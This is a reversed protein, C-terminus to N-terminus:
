SADMRPLRVQDLRHQCVRHATVDCDVPVLDLPIRHAGGSISVVFSSLVADEGGDRGVDLNRGHYQILGRSWSPLRFRNRSALLMGIFHRGLRMEDVGVKAATDRMMKHGRSVERIIVHPLASEAPVKCSFADRVIPLICAAMSCLLPPMMQLM